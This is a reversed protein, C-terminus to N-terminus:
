FLKRSITSKALNKNTFRIFTLSVLLILLIAILAIILTSQYLHPLTSAFSSDNSLTIVRLGLPVVSAVGVIHHESNFIVRRDTEIPQRLQAALAPLQHILAQLQQQENENAFLLQNHRNVLFVHDAIGKILFRQASSLIAKPHINVRLQGVPQGAFRVARSLRITNTAPRTDHQTNRM